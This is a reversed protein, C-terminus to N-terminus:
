NGFYFEPMGTMSSCQGGLMSTVYVDTLVRYPFTAGAWDTATMGAQIVNNSLTLQLTTPGVANLQLNSFRQGSWQGPQTTSLVYDGVPIQCYGPGTKAVRVRLTGGAAIPGNYYLSGSQNTQAVMAADGFFNISLQANEQNMYNYSRGFASAVLATSAPCGVCSAGIGGPVVAVTGGGGDKNGCAAMTLSLTLASIAIAFYQGIGKGNKREM